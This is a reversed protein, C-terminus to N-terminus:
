ETEYRQCCLQHIMPAGGRKAPQYGQGHDIHLMDRLHLRSISARVVKVVRLRGHPDHVCGEIQSSRGRLRQRVYCFRLVSNYTEHDGSPVYM